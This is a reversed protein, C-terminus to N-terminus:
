EKILKGNSQKVGNIYFSYTYIGSNLNKLNITTKNLSADLNITAISSGIIDIIKVVGNENKNLNYEITFQESFPNPYILVENKAIFKKDMKLGNLFLEEDSFPSSGGKYVGVANCIAIDDYDVGPKYMGLLTRAKYCASGTIFPCSSAFYQILSDQTTTISDIGKELMNIYITNILQENQETEELSVIAANANYLAQLNQEFLIPDILSLSDLLEQTVENSQAIYHSAGSNLANYFSDLLPNSTRLLSHFLTKSVARNPRAL